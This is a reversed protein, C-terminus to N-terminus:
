SRARIFESEPDEEHQEENAATVRAQGIAHMYLQLTRDGLKAPDGATLRPAILSALKFSLALVFDSPYVTPDNMDKTFEADAEDTDSFILIGTDDQAIKFPVRTQRTDNRTGSLIRRFKLCDPPYRYSFGWEANPDEEVLSLEEIKTAFPWPFDRLTTLRAIEYFRRCASAESSTETDVNNIEKGHGLHSLAMNCIETTSTVASM